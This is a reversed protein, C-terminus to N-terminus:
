ARCIVTVLGDGVVQILISFWLTFRLIALEIRDKM